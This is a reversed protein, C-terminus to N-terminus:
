STLENSSLLKSTVLVFFLAKLTTSTECPSPPSSASALFSSPHEASFGARSFFFFFFFFLFPLSLLLRMSFRRKGLHESLRFGGDVPSLRSRVREGKVKAGMKLDAHKKRDEALKAETGVALHSIVNSSTSSLPRVSVLIRRFVLVQLIRGDRSSGAPLGLQGLEDNRVICPWTIM